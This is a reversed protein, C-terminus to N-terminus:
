EVSNEYEEILAKAKDKDEEEIMIEVDGAIGDIFGAQLGANYRDHIMAPIKNDSLIEVIINCDMQPGTFICTLDKPDKM